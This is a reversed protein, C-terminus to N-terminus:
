INREVRLQSLSVMLYFYPPNYFDSFIQRTQQHDPHSFWWSHPCNTNCNLRITQGVQRLVTLSVEKIENLPVEGRLNPESPLGQHLMGKRLGASTPIKM